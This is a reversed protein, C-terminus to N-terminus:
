NQVTKCDSKDSLVWSMPNLYVQDGGDQRSLDDDCAGTLWHKILHTMILGSVM